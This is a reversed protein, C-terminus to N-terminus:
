LCPFMWWDYHFNPTDYNKKCLYVNEYTDQQRELLDRMPFSSSFIALFQTVLYKKSPFHQPM